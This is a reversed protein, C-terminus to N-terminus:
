VPCPDGRDLAELAWALSRSLQYGEGYAAVFLARAKEMLPKATALDGAKWYTAAANNLSIGVQPDNPGLVQAWVRAAQELRRASGKLDGLGQLTLGLNNLVFASNAHEVGFERTFIHLARENMARAEELRGDLRALEALANLSGAMEVSGGCGPAALAGRCSVGVEAESALEPAMESAVESNSEQGLFHLAERIALARRHLAESDSRRDPLLQLISAARHLGAAVWPHFEGLSHELHNTAVRTLALAETLRGGQSELLQALELQLAALDPHRSGGPEDAATFAAERLRLARRLLAEAEAAHRHVGSNGSGDPSGSQLARALSAMSGALESQAAPPDSRRWLNPLNAERLAVAERWLKVGEQGGGPGGGPGVLHGAALETLVALERLASEKAGGLQTALQTAAKLASLLARSLRAPSVAALCHRAEPRPLPLCPAVGAESGPHSGPGWVREWQDRALRMLLLEHFIQGAEPMLAEAEAGAQHSPGPPLLGPLLGPLLDLTADLLAKSSAEFVWNGELAASDLPEGACLRALARAGVASRVVSSRQMLHLVPPGPGDKAGDEFWAGPKSNMADSPVLLVRDRLSGGQFQFGTGEQPQRPQRWLRGFVRQEYEGEQAAPHNWWGELIALGEPGVRVLMTGANMDGFVASDRQDAAVLQVGKSVGAAKAAAAEEAVGLGLHHAADARAILDLVFNGKAQVKAQPDSEHSKPDADSEHGRLVLVDSDLWLLWPVGGAMCEGVGRARCKGATSDDGAMLQRMTHALLWVKGFRADMHPPVPHSDNFGPLPGHVWLPVGREECWSKAIAVFFRAYDGIPETVQMVVGFPPPSAGQRCLADTSSNAARVVERWEENGASCHAPSPGPTSPIVLCTLLAMRLSMLLALGLRVM